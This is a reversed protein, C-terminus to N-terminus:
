AAKNEKQELRGLELAQERTMQFNKQFFKEVRPFIAKLIEKRTPHEPSIEFIMGGDTGKRSFMNTVRRHLHDGTLDKGTVKKFEEPFFPM